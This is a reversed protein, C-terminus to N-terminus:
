IGFRQCSNFFFVFLFYMKVRIIIRREIFILKKSVLVFFFGLLFLFYLILEIEFVKSVSYTKLATSFPLNSKFSIFFNGLMM